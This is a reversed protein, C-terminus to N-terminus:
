KARVIVNRGIGTLRQIQSVSLEADKLEFLLANRRGRELAKLDAPAIEGLIQSARQRAEADSLRTRGVFRYDGGDEVVGDFLERMRRANADSKEMDIEPGKFLKGFFGM